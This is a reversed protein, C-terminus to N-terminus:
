WTTCLILNVVAPVKGPEFMTLGAVIHESNVLEKNVTRFFRRRFGPTDFGLGVEEGDKFPFLVKIQGM